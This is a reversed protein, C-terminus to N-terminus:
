LNAEKIYMEAGALVRLWREESAGEMINFLRNIFDFNYVKTNHILRLLYDENINLKRGIKGEKTDFYYHECLGETNEIEIFNNYM